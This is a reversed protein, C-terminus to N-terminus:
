SPSRLMQPERDSSDGSGEVTLPLRLEVTTGGPAASLVDITGRHSDVILKATSLGLGAGAIVGTRAASGRFFRDFIHPQEAEPIGIGTDAIRVVASDKDSAVSLSISGGMQNFKLANSLLKDFVYSIESADVEATVPDPRPEMVEVGAELAAPRIADLAQSALETINAPQRATSVKGEAEIILDNILRLLRQSNRQIIALPERIGSDDLDVSDEIVELYGIMSTLPTRLEHSVTRLFDDRSRIANTLETIDHTAVLTGILEGTDRHVHRSTAMVARQKGQPGVWLTRGTDIEGRAARSIVQDEPPVPTVRDEGFVLVSTSVSDPSTRGALAALSRATDNTLIITGDENYFTIGADVNNIVALATSETDRRQEASERLEEYTTALESRQREMQRAAAYVAVGVVSIILPLLLAIGWESASTPWIGSQLYPGLAVLYDGAAAIILGPLKFSYALWLTPILVLISLGPETVFLQTRLEAVILIDITAVVIMWEYAIRHWPPIVAIVSIVLASFGLWLIDPFTTDSRSGSSIGAVLIIGALLPIQGYFFLGDRLPGFRDSFFKNV